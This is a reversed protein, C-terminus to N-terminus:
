LLAASRFAVDIAEPTELGVAPALLAILSHGREYRTAYEWEVQAPARDAEPLAAIAADVSALPIGQALLWLRLQRATIDPVPIDEPGSPAPAAFTEGNWTWGETVEIGEPVPELTAVLDPHFLKEVEPGDSPIRILEAVIGASIRAYTKM